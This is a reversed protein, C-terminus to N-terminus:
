HTAPFQCLSNPRSPALSHTCTPAQGGGSCVVNRWPYRLNGLRSNRRSGLRCLARVGSVGGCNGRYAARGARGSAGERFEPCKLHMVMEGGVDQSVFNCGEESRQGRIEARQRMAKGDWASQTCPQAKGATSTGQPRGIIAWRKWRHTTRLGGAGTGDPVFSGGREEDGARAAIGDEEGRTSKSRPTTAGAPGRAALGLIGVFAGGGFGPCESSMLM